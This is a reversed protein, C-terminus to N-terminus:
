YLNAEVIDSCTIAEVLCTRGGLFRIVDSAAIVVAVVVAVVFGDAVGRALVDRGDEDRRPVGAALLM